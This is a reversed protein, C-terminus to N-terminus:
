GCFLHQTSRVQTRGSGDVSVVRVLARESPHRRVDIRRKRGQLALRRGGLSVSLSTAREGAPARVVVDFVPTAHCVVKGTYTRNCGALKLKLLERTAFTVSPACGTGARAADITATRVNRAAVRLRHGPAGAPSAPALRTSVAYALGSSLAGSASSPTPVLRASPAGSRVDIRGPRDVKALRVESVWYAHDARLGHEPESVAANVAYTVRAPDRVVRSDGLFEALPAADNLSASALATHEVGDFTLAAYDYGLEELRQLLSVQASYLCTRDATTLWSMVPVNRLGGLLPELSRARGGPLSRVGTWEIGAGPCPAVGGARAFLDPYTAALKYAGYGGMSSGVISTFDPDLTYRRAVDAWAEFVDTAAQGFYWYCDGRAEPTLVISGKGREGLQRQRRSGLGIAYTQGCGHLDITLGFGGAPVPRSPVYVAYPQLRGSYQLACPAECGPKRSVADGRGQRDETASAFIRTLYGTAPVDSDDDVGAALKTFDVSASFDSLDGDALEVAQANSRWPTDPETGRFAVNFFAAASQPLYATGSWLGTGAAIRVAKRGTPDFVSSPVRVDVQRRELDVAVPLSAAITAGSVADVADAEGGHVTVFVQAPMRANAGHPMALAVPASGLGITTAVVSPDAMANYTLRFATEGPLPKVRLEVLDAADGAYRPDDPYRYANAAGLDDYLFDQYLFEGKRYATAGSVLIPDAQWIGTNQLQPADTPAAYLVDPGPRPGPGSYLSAAGAACPVACGLALSAALATRLLSM